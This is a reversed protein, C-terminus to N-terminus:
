PRWPHMFRTEHRAPPQPAQTELWRVHRVIEGPGDRFRTAGPQPASAELFRAPVGDDNRLDHGVGVGVFCWDDPELVEGAISLRGALVFIVQEFSHVHRGVAARPGLEM